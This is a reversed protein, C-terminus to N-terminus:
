IISGKACRDLLYGATVQRGFFQVIITLYRLIYSTEIFAVNDNITHFVLEIELKM